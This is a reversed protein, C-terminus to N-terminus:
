YYLVPLEEIRRRQRSAVMLALLASAMGLVVVFSLSELLLGTVTVEMYTNIFRAANAGSDAVLQAGTSLDQGASVAGVVEPLGGGIQVTASATYDATGTEVIVYTAGVPLETFRLEQNHRLQVQQTTGWVFTIPLSADGVVEGADDLTVIYATGGPIVPSREIAPALLTVGFNFLRTRDAFDGAVKKSLSLAVDNLNTPDTGGTTKTFTNVFRMNSENGPGGPTVDIKEGTGPEQGEVAATAYVAYVYPGDAGDRVYVHLYYKAQSFIMESQDPLTQGGTLTTLESVEFLFIGAHPFFATENDGTLTLFPDSEKTLTLVGDVATTTDASTFDITVDEISANPTGTLPRVLDFEFTFTVDPTTTGAPMQLNKTLAAQAPNTETAGPWTNTAFASAFALASLAVALVLVLLLKPLYKRKM